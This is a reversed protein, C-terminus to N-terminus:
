ILMKQYTLFGFKPCIQNFRILLLNGNKNDLALLNIFFILFKYFNSFKPFLPPPDQFIARIPARSSFVYGFCRDLFTM